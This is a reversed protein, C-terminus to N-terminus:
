SDLGLGTRNPRAHAALVTRMFEITADIDPRRGGAVNAWVLATATLALVGFIEEPAEIEPAASSTAAILDRKLVHTIVGDPDLLVRLALNSECQTFSTM